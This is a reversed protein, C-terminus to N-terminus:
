GGCFARIADQILAYDDRWAGTPYAAISALALLGNTAFHSVGAGGHGPLLFLALAVLILGLSRQM